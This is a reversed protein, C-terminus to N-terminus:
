LPAVISQYDCIRTIPQVLEEVYPRSVQANLLCSAPKQGHVQALNMESDNQM